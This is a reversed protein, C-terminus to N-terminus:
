PAEAQLGSIEPYLRRALLPDRCSMAARKHIAITLKPSPKGKTKEYINAYTNAFCECYKKPEIRKPMGSTTKLCQDYQRGATNIVNKCEGELGQLISGRNAKPGREIRTDLLKVSLCECDYNANMHASGVCRDYFAYAEDFYEDPIETLDDESIRESKEKEPVERENLIDQVSEQALAVSSSVFSIACAFFILLTLYIFGRIKM